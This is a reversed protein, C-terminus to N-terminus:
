DARTEIINKLETLQAIEDAFAADPTATLLRIVQDICELIDNDIKRVDTGLYKKVTIIFAEAFAAETVSGSLFETILLDLTKLVETAQRSEATEREIRKTETEIQKTETEIRATHKQYCFLIFRM